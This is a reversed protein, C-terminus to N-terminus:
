DSGGIQLILKVIEDITLGIDKMEKLFQRVKKEAISKSLNLIREKNDTVFNGMGRKSYIYEERELETYARQVTNPNVNLTVALDRVSPLKENLKWEEIIIKVKVYTIIQQYIPQNDNFKM